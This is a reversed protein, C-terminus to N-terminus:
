VRAHAAETITMNVPLSHFSDLDLSFRTGGNPAWEEPEFSLRDYLNSVMGNKATPYYEGILRRAGLQKAHEALINLCAEEVQRGLVRCSMLWTDIVADGNETLKAVLIAIIGNDGFKDLLRFQLTVARPDNMVSRVEAETYRRTTLNFQNTKNILQTVRALSIDDFPNCILEMRLNQLYGSLDTASERLLEREANAQYQHNRERDEATISVAEFYGADALTGIYFSPDDSIEPVAVQPLEQRVLNREFPNDDVFVLSDLGINLARAIKRLNNAKDDWNAVFCAIDERRLVMDPHHEFPALANAEDNKSCVALIVGRRKLGLVYRQFAVFAEGVSSGQGLGIGGLGDDGIVGGWLTNDLDLVLCKFSLGRDAAVLRVLLDGYVQSVRPHIEQKSRHWLALDHWANIGDAAAQDEIALLHVGDQDAAARLEMNFRRVRERPSEALRQENSGMLLPFVPLATQQIVTCGFEQKAISWCHRLNAIFDPIDVRDGEAVHHADMAIVVAHPKFRHLASSPDLFEQLYMGYEGEFVDLWLNRRYGAARIGPVLHKLTSSGVLAVRLPKLGLAIVSEKTFHKQACRDLRSTQIFDIRSSALAVVEKWRAGDDTACSVEELRRAWDPVEPLWSLEIPLHKGRLSFHPRANFATVCLNSVLSHLMGGPFVPPLICHQTKEVM